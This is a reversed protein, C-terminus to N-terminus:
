TLDKAPNASLHVTHRQLFTPPDVAWEEIQQYMEAFTAGVLHAPGSQVGFRNIFATACGRPLIPAIDNAYVDGVSMLWAADLDGLLGAIIRDLFKPKGAECILQDVLDAIGLASLARQVGDAPANTLVVPSAPLARLFQALGPPSSIKLETENLVQRSSRYADNLQEASLYPACLDAVAFYGDAYPLDPRDGALFRTLTARVSQAVSPSIQATAADAYAWVPGDGLAITGDFDLVLIPFPM